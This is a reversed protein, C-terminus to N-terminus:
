MDSFPFSNKKESIEIFEVVDLEKAHKCQFVLLFFTAHMLFM